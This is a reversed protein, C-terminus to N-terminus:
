EHIHQLYVYVHAYMLLHGRAGPLEECAAVVSYTLSHGTCVFSNVQTEREGELAVEGRGRQVM